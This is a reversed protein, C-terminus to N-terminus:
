NGGGGNELIPDSHLKHFSNWGMGDGVLFPKQFRGWGKQKLIHSDGGQGLLRGWECLWKRQLCVEIIEWFFYLDFLWKKLSCGLNWLLIKHERSSIFRLIESKKLRWIADSVTTWMRVDRSRWICVTHPETTKFYKIPKREYRLKQHTDKFFKCLLHLHSHNMWESCM